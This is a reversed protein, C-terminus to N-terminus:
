AERWPVDGCEHCREFTFTMAGCAPCERRNRDFNEAPQVEAYDDLSTRDMAGAPGVILVRDYAEVLSESEYDINPM